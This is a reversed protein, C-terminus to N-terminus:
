FSHFSSPLDMASIFHFHGIWAESITQPDTLRIELGTTEWNAYISSLEHGIKYMNEYFLLSPTVRLEFSVKRLEM